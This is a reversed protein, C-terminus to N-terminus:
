KNILGCKIMILAIGIAFLLLVFAGIMNKLIRRKFSDEKDKM